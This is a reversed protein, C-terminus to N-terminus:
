GGAVKATAQESVREERKGDEFHQQHHWCNMADRVCKDEDDSLKHINWNNDVIYTGKVYPKVAKGAPSDKDMGKAELYKDSAKDAQKNSHSNDNQQGIGKVYSAPCAQVSTALVFMGAVVAVIVMYRM